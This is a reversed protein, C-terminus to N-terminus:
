VVRSMCVAPSGRRTTVAPTGRMGPAVMKSFRRQALSFRSSTRLASMHSGRPCASMYPAKSVSGTVGPASKPTMKM